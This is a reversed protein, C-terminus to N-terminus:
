IAEFDMGRPDAVSIVIASISAPEAEKIARAAWYLTAGTTMVDDILVVHKGRVARPKLLGFADRLNEHRDERSHLHTQTETNKLRVMADCFRPGHPKCLKKLRRAVIEAQNYGRSMQRWPHLPVPILLDTQTLLGKVPEQALLREALFEALTWRGHYKIQHILHRIPDKFVGLRVITAFPHVGKGQCHPCLAGTEAVPLACFECAAGFELKRLEELCESCIELDSQGPRECVACSRPYCFDLLHRLPASLRM